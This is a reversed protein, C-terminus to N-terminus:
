GVVHIVLSVLLGVDVPLNVPHVRLLHLHKLPLPNFLLLLFQLHLPIQSILHVLHHLCMM